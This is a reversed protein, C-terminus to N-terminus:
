DNLFDEIKKYITEIDLSADVELVKIPLQKAIQAMIDQIQLLYDVGRMEIADKKKDGLRSEILAKNTMFLVIKDPYTNNLALFNMELLAKQSITTQNALAYAVGSLFGRDSLILKSDRENKVVNDYHYARDALFMFLEANYSNLGSLLMKRLKLGLSTGGPEKTTLVNAKRQKFLEIQTSKGSTDVGEFIVYM